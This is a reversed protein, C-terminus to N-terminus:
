PPNTLYVLQLLDGCFPFRCPEQWMYKVEVLCLYTLCTISQQSSYERDKFIFLVQTQIHLLFSGKRLGPSKVVRSETEPKIMGIHQSPSGRLRSSYHLAGQSDVEYFPLFVQGAARLLQRRIASSFICSCSGFAKCPSGCVANLINNSIM